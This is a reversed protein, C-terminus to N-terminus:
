SVKDDRGGDFYVGYANYAMKGLLTAHREETVFQELGPLGSELVQSLHKMGNADPVLELYRLREIHDALLYEGGDADTFDNEATADQSPSLAPVASKASQVMKNTEIAVQRAIFKAVLLPSARDNNKIYEVFPAQASKRTELASAPM